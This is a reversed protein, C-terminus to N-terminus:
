RERWWGAEEVKVVTVDVLVVSVGVRERVTTVLWGVCWWGSMIACM